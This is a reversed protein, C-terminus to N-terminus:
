GHSRFAVVKKWSYMRQKPLLVRGKKLYFAGTPSLQVEVSAGHKAMSDYVTYSLKGKRPWTPKADPPMHPPVPVTGDTLLAMGHPPVGCLKTKPVGEGCKTKRQAHPNPVSPPTTALQDHVEKAYEPM